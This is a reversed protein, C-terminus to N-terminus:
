TFFSADSEIAAAMTKKSLAGLSYKKFQRLEQFRLIAQIKAQLKAKLIVV